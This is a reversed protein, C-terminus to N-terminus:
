LEWKLDQGIRIERKELIKDIMRNIEFENLQQKPLVLNTQNKLKIFYFNKVEDIFEITSLNVEGKGMPNELKFCTDEIELSEMKNLAFAFKENVYKKYYTAFRRKKFFLQYVPLFLGVVTAVWFVTSFGHKSFSDYALFAMWAPFLTFSLVRYIKSKKTNLGYFVLCSVLGEENVTYELKM